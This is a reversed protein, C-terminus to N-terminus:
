HGANCHYVEVITDQELIVGFEENISQALIRPFVRQLFSKNSILTHCFSSYFSQDIENDTIELSQLENTSHRCFENVLYSVLERFFINIDSQNKCEYLIPESTMTPGNSSLFNRFLSQM